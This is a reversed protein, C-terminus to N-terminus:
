GKLAEYGSAMVDPAWGITAGTGFGGVLNRLLHGPNKRAYLAGSLLGALGGIAPGIKRLKEGTSMDRKPIPPSFEFGVKELAAQCGNMYFMSKM